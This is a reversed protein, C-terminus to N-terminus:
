AMSTMAAVLWSGSARSPMRDNRSFRLGRQRRPRQGSRGRPRGGIRTARRGRSKIPTAKRLIHPFAVGIMSHIPTRAREHLGSVNM